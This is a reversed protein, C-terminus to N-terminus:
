LTTRMFFRNISTRIFIYDPLISVDNNSSYDAEIQPNINVNQKQCQSLQNEINNKESLLIQYKSKEAEIEDRLKLVELKM